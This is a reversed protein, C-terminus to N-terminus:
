RAIEGTSEVSMRFLPACEAGNRTPKILEIEGVIKLGCHLLGKQSAQNSPDTHRPVDGALASRQM